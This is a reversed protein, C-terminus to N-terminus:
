DMGNKTQKCYPTHSELECMLHEMEAIKDEDKELAVLKDLSGTRQYSALNSLFEKAKSIVKYGLIDYIM